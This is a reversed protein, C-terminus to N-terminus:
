RFKEDWIMQLWRFLGRLGGDSSEDCIMQVEMQVEVRLDDPAM